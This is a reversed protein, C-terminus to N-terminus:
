IADLVGKVLEEVKKLKGFFLIPHAKVMFKYATFAYTIAEKDESTLTEVLMDIIMYMEEKADNNMKSALISQKDSRLM